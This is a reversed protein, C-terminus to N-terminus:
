GLNAIAQIDAAFSYALDLAFGRAREIGASRLLSAMEAVPKWTSNGADLYVVAGPEATKPLNILTRAM